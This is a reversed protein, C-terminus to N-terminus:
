FYLSFVNKATEYTTWSIAVSPAHVMLRPRLGRTFGAAGETQYIRQATDFFGSYRVHHHHHATSLRAKGAFARPLTTTGKTNVGGLSPAEKARRARSYFPAALGFSPRAVGGSGISLFGSVSVGLPNRGAFAKAMSRSSPTNSSSAAAATGSPPGGRGTPTPDTPTPKSRAAAAAMKARHLETLVSQTQLRTKIVDLPTTAAAAVAGALGGSVFFAPLNYENSPNLVKKFSENAAVMIGAFPINMALTTPLSRFFAGAGEAQSVSRACDLIGAHLGLQLRQKIVDMPTMIADHGLTAVAGCAAAAFPTHNNEDDAGFSIKSQEFVSFYIAHAPITAALMTSVGRWLRAVGERAILEKVAGREAGEAQLHTRITDMPFIACHEAAGALSGACAHVRFSLGSEPRWEEWEELSDWTEAM